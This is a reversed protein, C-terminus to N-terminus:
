VGKTKLLYILGDVHLPHIPECNQVLKPQPRLSTEKARWAIVLLWLSWVIITLIGLLTPIDNTAAFGEVGLIWGQALSALGSIAVLCGIMKPLKTSQVIEAGFLLFALGLVFSQYGRAAWGIGGLYIFPMTCLAFDLFSSKGAWLSVSISRPGTATTPMSSSAARHDNARAHDPHSTVALLSILIGTILLVRSLHLLNRDSM